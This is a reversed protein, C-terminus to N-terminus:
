LDDFTINNDLMHAHLMERVGQVNPWLEPASHKALVRLWEDMSSLVSYAATANVARRHAAADDPDNLDFTLTATPM